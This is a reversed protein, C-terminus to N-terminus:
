RTFGIRAAYLTPYPCGFAVVCAAPAIMVYPALRNLRLRLRLRLRAAM